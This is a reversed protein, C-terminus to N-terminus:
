RTRTRSICILECETKAFHAMMSVKTFVILTSVEVFFRNWAGSVMKSYRLSSVNALLFRLLAFPPSVKTEILDWPEGLKDAITGWMEERTSMYLTALQALKEKDWEEAKKYRMLLEWHKRCANDSKGAAELMSDQEIEYWKLGDSKLDLLRKELDPPWANTRRRTRQRIPVPTISAGSRRPAKPMNEAALEIFAINQDLGLASLSPLLM